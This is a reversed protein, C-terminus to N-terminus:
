FMTRLGIKFLTEDADGTEMQQFDATDGYAEKYALAVYPAFGRTFEYRLQASYEATSLGSGIQRSPDDEAYFDLAIGPELILRQTFLLEGTAEFRASLDGSSSVFAAADVEFFYPALGQLGIVGYSEGKPELDYRVGFQADWFKSIYRSYLAQVEADEFDGDAFEGETKWWFRNYDGGVWGQADWAGVAEDDIRTIDAEILTYNYIPDGEAALVPLATAMALAGALLIRPKM